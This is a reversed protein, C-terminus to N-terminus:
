ESTHVCRYGIIQIIEGNFEPSDQLGNLEVFDGIKFRHATKCDTNNLTNYTKM